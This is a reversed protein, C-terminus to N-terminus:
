DVYSANVRELVTEPSLRHVQPIIAGYQSLVIAQDLEHQFVLISETLGVIACILGIGLGLYRHLPFTFQRIDKYRMPCFHCRLSPSSVAQWQWNISGSTAWYGSAFSAFPLKLKAPDNKALKRIM